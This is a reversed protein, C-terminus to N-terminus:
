NKREYILVKDRNASESAFPLLRGEEVLDVDRGVLKSLLVAIRSITLLSIPASTDYQVMIDIDSDPREEGRSASGYLWAKEVPQGVLFQQIKSIM